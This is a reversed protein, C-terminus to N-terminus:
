PVCLGKRKKWGVAKLWSVFRRKTKIPQQDWMECESCWATHETTINGLGPM